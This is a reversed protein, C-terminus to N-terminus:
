EVFIHLRCPWRMGGHGQCIRGGLCKQGGGERARGVLEKAGGSGESRMQRLHAAQLAVGTIGEGFRERGSAEARGRDVQM